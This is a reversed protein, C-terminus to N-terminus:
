LVGKVAQCSTKQEGNEDTFLIRTNTSKFFVGSGGVAKARIKLTFSTDLEPIVVNIARAVAIFKTSSKRKFRRLKGKFSQTGEVADGTYDYTYSLEGAKIRGRRTIRFQLTDLATFTNDAGIFDEGPICSYKGKFLSFNSDAFADGVVIFFLALVTLPIRM